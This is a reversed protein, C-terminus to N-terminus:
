QTAVPLMLSSPNKAFRMAAESAGGSQPSARILPLGAQAGRQSVKVPVGPGWFSKLRTPNWQIRKSSHTQVRFHSQFAHLGAVADAISSSLM